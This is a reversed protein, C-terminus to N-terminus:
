TARRSLVTSDRVHHLVGPYVPCVCSPELVPRATRVRVSVSFPHPLLSRPMSKSKGAPDLAFPIADSALCVTWLRTCGMDHDSGSAGCFGSGGATHTNARAIGDCSNKRADRIRIMTRLSVVTRSIQPLFDGAPLFDPHPLLNEEDWDDPRSDPSPHQFRSEKGIM